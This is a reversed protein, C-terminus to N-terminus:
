FGPTARHGQNKFKALLKNSRAIAARSKTMSLASVVLLAHSGRICRILQIHRAQVDDTATHAIACSQLPHFSAPM